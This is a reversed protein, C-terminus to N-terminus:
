NRGPRRNHPNRTSGNRLGDSLVPYVLIVFEAKQGVVLPLLKRPTGELIRESPATLDLGLLIRREPMHEALETLLKELRYPTDMLITAQSTQTLEKLAQTREHAERPLFGAFHFRDIRESTLSLLTMLSSPGPLATIPISRERCLKTLRSGPDCFAPTGADSVLAVQHTLCKEALERVDEDTSHENLNALPKGTIELQKLLRSVEKFEEGVILDAERLSRVARMSIDELNGIPTAIITLSM